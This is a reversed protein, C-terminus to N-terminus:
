PRQACDIVLRVEPAPVYAPDTDDGGDWQGEIQCLVTGRELGAVSGDPGDASIATHESWGARRLSALLDNMPDREKAPIGSAEFHCGHRAQAPEDLFRVILGRTRTPKLGTVRRLTSRVDQCAIWADDHDLAVASAQPVAARAATRADTAASGAASMAALAFIVSAVFPGATNAM